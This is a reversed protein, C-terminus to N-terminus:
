RESDGSKYGDRLSGISREGIAKLFRLLDRAMDWQCAELAADLLLTAHQRAVMPKELNQLIILYSAATTLKGSILCKQFPQDSIDDNTFKLM